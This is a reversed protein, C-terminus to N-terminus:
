FREPWLIRERSRQKIMEEAEVVTIGFVESLIEQAAHLKLNTLDDESMGTNERPMIPMRNVRSNNSRARAM